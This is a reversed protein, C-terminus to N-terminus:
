RNVSCNVCLHTNLTPKSIKQDQGNVVIGIAVMDWLATWCESFICYQIAKNRNRIVKTCFTIITWKAKDGAQTNVCDIQINEKLM